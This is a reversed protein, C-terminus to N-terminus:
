ADDRGDSISEYVRQAYAAGRAYASRLIEYDAGDKMLADDMWDHDSAANAVCRLAIAASSGDLRLRPRLIASGTLSRHPALYSESM